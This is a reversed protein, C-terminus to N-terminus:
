AVRGVMGWDLGALGRWEIPDGVAALGAVSEVEIIISEMEVEGSGWMAGERRGGVVTCASSVVRWEDSCVGSSVGCSIPSPSFSIIADCSLLM